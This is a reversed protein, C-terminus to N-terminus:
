PTVHGIDREGHLTVGTERLSVGKLASRARSSLVRGSNEGAPTLRTGSSYGAPNVASWSRAVM